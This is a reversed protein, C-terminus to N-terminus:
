VIPRPIVFFFTAGKPSPKLGINGQLLSIYKKAMLLGLGHSNDEPDTEAATRFLKKRVEPPVGPGEDRVEVRLENKGVRCNVTIVSNDPTHKLANGLLIEYVQSFFMEDSHFIAMPNNSALNVQIGRMNLLPGHTSIKSELVTHPNFPSIKPEILGGELRTLNLLVKSLAILNENAEFASQLNHWQQPQYAKPGERLMLELFGKVISSPTKLQHAAFSVFLSKMEGANLVRKIERVEMIAGRVTRGKAIQLARVAVPVLEKKGKRKLYCFFPTVQTYNHTHLAQWAPRKREPLLEGKQDTLIVTDFFNHGALKKASIGLLREARESSYLITAKNDLVLTAAQGLRELLLKYLGPDELLSAKESM